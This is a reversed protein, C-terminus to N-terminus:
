YAHATLVMVSINQVQRVQKIIYFLCKSCKFINELKAKYPIDLSLEM